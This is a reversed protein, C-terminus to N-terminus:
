AIYSGSVGCFKPGTGTFGWVVGVAVFNPSTATGTNLAVPAGSDQYCIGQAAGGACSTNFPLVFRTGIQAQCSAHDLAPVSIFLLQTPHSSKDGEVTQGWGAIILSIGSAVSQNVPLSIPAVSPGLPVTTNLEIVAVDVTDEFANAVVYSPHIWIFKGAAVIPTSDLGVSVLVNRAFAM